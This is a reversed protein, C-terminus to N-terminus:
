RMGLVRTRNMGDEEGSRVPDYRTSAAVAFLKARSANVSSNASAAPLSGSSNRSECRSLSRMRFTSFAAVSFNPQSSRRFFRRDPVPM